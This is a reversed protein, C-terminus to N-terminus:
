KPCAEWDARWLSVAKVAILARISWTITLVDAGCHRQKAAAHVTLFSSHLEILGFLLCPSSPGKAEEGQTESTQESIVEHIGTYQRLCGILCAEVIKIFQMGPLVRLCFMAALTHSM